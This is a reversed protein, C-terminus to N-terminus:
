GREAHRRRLDELGEERTIVPAYRLERRARADSVTCTEGIVQLTARDLPPLGPRRALRWVTDLAAAALRAVPRPVSKSPATVGQTELLATVFTRFEVPEGDTLFYARGGTGHEAAALIGQVANDVHCTSTEYHGGGIWQLHGSDAAAVLAPLITTDDNGWIFRPRVAVTSTAPTSAQLVHREAQGKTIGYSGLPTEPYPWTEDADVIPRGGLLVQETSVYVLRPVGVARAAQVVNRSGQVNVRHMKDLDRAGGSVIAAAHVVVDAGDMGRRLAEADDLDGRIARAGAHEVTAVAVDTRAIASVRRGAATLRRILNRGLFGSGGTVFFSVESANDDAPLANM